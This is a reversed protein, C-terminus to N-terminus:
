GISIVSRAGDRRGIINLLNNLVTQQGEAATAEGRFYVGQPGVTGQGTLQLAGTDTGLSLRTTGPKDPDGDISLTYSGLQELTTVRSSVNMLKVEASGHIRVRGQVWELALNRASVRISGGLDMTNWPAGLGNLVAAPWQGLWGGKSQVDVRVQGLGPRILVGVTQNLCCRQQLNLQLGLGKPHMTWQLRDPLVRADRSGAGATLVALASGNWVTGQAQALQIRGNSAASVGAALWSAPAFFVLGVLGGIIGGTIAWRMSARRDRIWRATQMTSDLWQTSGSFNRALRTWPFAPKAM